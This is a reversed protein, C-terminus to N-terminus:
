SECSLIKKIINTTSFGDEYKVFEVKKVADAGAVTKGKWDAGKILVDPKLFEILNQPTDEDFFTVFDGCELGALLRARGDQAIIPRNSGKISKVSKDSNVGIVLVRGAKKIKELYTVHGFHLIDFCGNTFTITNGAKKLAALKSKLSKASLIKNSTDM